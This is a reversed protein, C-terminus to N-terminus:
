RYLLSLIIDAPGLEAGVRELQHISRGEDVWVRAHHTLINDGQINTKLCIITSTVMYLKSSVSSQLHLWTHKVQPLQWSYTTISTSSQLQRSTHNAETPHNCSDGQINQKCAGPTLGPRRQNTVSVGCSGPVHRPLNLIGRGVRWWFSSKNGLKDRFM